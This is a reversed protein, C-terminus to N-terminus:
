KDGDELLLKVLRSSFEGSIVNIAGAPLQEQIDSDRYGRLWGKMEVRLKETIFESRDDMNARFSSLMQLARDRENRCALAENQALQIKRALGYENLTWPGTLKQRLSWGLAVCIAYRLKM